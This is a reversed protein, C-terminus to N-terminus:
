LVWTLTTLRPIAQRNQDPPGTPGFSAPKATHIDCECLDEGGQGADAKEPSGCCMALGNARDGAPEGAFRPFLTPRSFRSGARRVCEMQAAIVIGGLTM